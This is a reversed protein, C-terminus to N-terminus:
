LEGDKWNEGFFKTYEDEFNPTFIGKGIHEIIKGREWFCGGNLEEENPYIDGDVCTMHVYVLEKERKGEFIYVGLRKAEFDKLGLEEAAERRLAVDVNEGFDVHGGCATDWKDPQIDKWSPRHQLFLDGKTNFVHLHVVPHLIKTGCHAEERTISGITRGKEDVIPFLEQQNDRM